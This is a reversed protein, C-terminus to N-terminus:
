IKYVLPRILASDFQEAMTKKTKTPQVLKITLAHSFSSVFNRKREGRKKKKKIKETEQLKM